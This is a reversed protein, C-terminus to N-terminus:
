GRVCHTHLAEALEKRARTLRSKVVYASSGLRAAVDTLSLEEIAVLTWVDRHSSTLQCVARELRARNRCEELEVDPSGRENAALDLATEDYVLKCRYRRRLHDCCINFIIRRLFWAFKSSSRLRPLARFLQLFVQQIADERDEAVRIYRTLNSNVMPRYQLYLFSFAHRDGRMAAIIVEHEQAIM